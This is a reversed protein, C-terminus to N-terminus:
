KIDKIGSHAIYGTTLGGVVIGALIPLLAEWGTNGTALVGASVLSGMVAGLVGGIKAGAIADEKGGYGTIGFNEKEAWKKHDYNPDDKDESKETYGPTVEDEVETLRGETMTQVGSKIISDISGGKKLTQVSKVLVDKDLGASILEKAAKKLKNPDTKLDAIIKQVEKNQLLSDIDMDTATDEKLFGKSKLYSQEMKKNAETIVRLKDRRNM